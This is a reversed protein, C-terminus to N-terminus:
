VLVVSGDSYVEVTHTLTPGPAPQPPPVPAPAVRKNLDCTFGAINTTSTRQWMTMFTWGCFPKFAVLDPAAYWLPYGSFETSEILGANEMGGENTYIGARLGASQLRLIESRIDAVNDFCNVEVDIWCISHPWCLDLRRGPLDVYFEQFFLAPDFWAKQQDAVFPVGAVPNDQLGMVVGVYGADHIAQVQYATPVRSWNSCDIWDEVRLVDTM